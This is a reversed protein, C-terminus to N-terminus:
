RYFIHNNIRCVEELHDAWYPYIYDAHYWLAGETIDIQETNLYEDALKLSAMWTISDQPVDPKGDCFWSFQCMGRKPILEGTKWSTYHEKAEYVVDCVTDPFQPDAVRNMTVQAVAIRGAKPQNGAEFYINKALCFREGNEDFAVSETCLLVLVIAVIFQIPKSMIWIRGMVDENGIVTVM